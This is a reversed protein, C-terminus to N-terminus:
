RTPRSAGHAAAGVPGALRLVPGSGPLAALGPPVPSNPGTAAVDVRGILRGQYYDARLQWWLPQQGAGVRGAPADSGTAGTELWAYRANQTSVANLGALTTLLLGVGIAVAVTIMVLRVAAEKGGGLTLRLALRIM